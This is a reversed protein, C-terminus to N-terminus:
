SQKLVQMYFWRLNFPGKEPALLNSEFKNLNRENTDLDLIIIRQLLFLGKYIIGM